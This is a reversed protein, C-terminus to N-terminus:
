VSLARNSVVIETAKKRSDGKAGVSRKVAVEVVHWRAYLERAKASNTLVWRAGIANLYVLWEALEAQDALGFGGAQYETFNATSSAPVYPPDLFVFDGPGVGQLVDRYHAARLDVGSRLAASWARIAAEDLIKPNKYDGFPVNFEGSQNERYLGNFCTHNLYILLAATEADDLWGHNFVGRAAYYVGEDYRFPRLIEVVRDPADRVGRYMAVLRENRDALVVPCRGFYRRAVAASGAFPERYFGGRQAVELPDPLFQPYEDLWPKAGAYRLLPKM